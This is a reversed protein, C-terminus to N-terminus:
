ESMRRTTSRQDPQREIVRDIRENLHDVRSLVATVGAMIQSTAEKLGEKTIYDEAVHTKFESLERTAEKAEKHVSEIKYEIRWWLGGISGMVALFLLIVEGTIPM